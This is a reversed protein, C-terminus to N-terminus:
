VSFWQFLHPRSLIFENWYFAILSRIQGKRKKRNRNVIKFAHTKVFVLEMDKFPSWLYSMDHTRILFPQHLASSPSPMSYRTEMLAHSARAFSRGLIARLINSSPFVSTELRSFHRLLALTGPRFTKLNIPVGRLLFSLNPVMWLHRWARSPPLPTTWFMVYYPLNRPNLVIILGFHTVLPPPPGFVGLIQMVDNTFPGWCEHM